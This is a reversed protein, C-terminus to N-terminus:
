FQHTRVIMGIAVLSFDLSVNLSIVVLNRKARLRDIGSELRLSDSICDFITDVM